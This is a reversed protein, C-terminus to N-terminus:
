LMRPDFPRQTTERDVWKSPKTGPVYGGQWWGKPWRGFLGTRPRTLGDMTRPPPAVVDEPLADPAHIFDDRPL